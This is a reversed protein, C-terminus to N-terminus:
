LEKLCLFKGDVAHKRKLAHERLHEARDKVELNNISNNFPNEDKHHVHETRNLKRGLYEEMIARHLYQGSPTKIYWWHGTEFGGGYNSNNPGKNYDTYCKHSCFKRIEFSHRCELIGMKSRSRNFSVGCQKCIKDPLHLLRGM